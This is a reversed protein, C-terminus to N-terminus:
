VSQCAIPSTRRLNINGNQSLLTSKITVSSAGSGNAHWIGQNNNAIISSTIFGSPVGGFIFIGAGTGANNSITSNTINFPTNGIEIGHETANNRLTCSTINLAVSANSFIISSSDAAGASPGTNGYIEDRNLNLTGNNNFEIAAANETPAKRGGTFALDNITVTGASPLFVNLLRFTNNGNITLVNAGPGNITVAKDITIGSLLNIASLGPQFGITGGPCVDLLVQRLSGTGSDNGNAVIISSTCGVQVTYARSGHLTFLQTAGTSAPQAFPALAENM